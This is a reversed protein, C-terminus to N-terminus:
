IIENLDFKINQWKKYADLYMENRNGNYTLEYYMGDSVTTSILAKHNQLSKSYWVVYVSDSSIDAKDTRECHENYYEAVKQKCLEIYQDSELFQM